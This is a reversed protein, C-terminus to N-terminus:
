RRWGCRRTSPSCRCPRDGVDDVDADAAGVEPRDHGGLRELGVALGTQVDVEDGVDVARVDGLRQLFSLGSVVRNMTAELVKVVCSVSVLAVDARSQNRFVAPSLLCTALCKTAREVLSFSTVFNPMSVSFM